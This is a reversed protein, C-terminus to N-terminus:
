QKILCDSGGSDDDGDDGVDGVDNEPGDAAVVACSEVNSSAGVERVAKYRARVHICCTLCTDKGEYHSSATEARQQGVGTM